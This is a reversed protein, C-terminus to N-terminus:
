FTFKCKHFRYLNEVANPVNASFLQISEYYANWLYCM